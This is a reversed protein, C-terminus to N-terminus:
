VNNVEKANNIETRLPKAFKIATPIDFLIQVLENDIEGEILIENDIVSKVTLYDNASFSCTHKIELAM